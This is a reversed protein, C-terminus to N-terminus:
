LFTHLGIAIFAAFVAFLGAAIVACLGRTRRFHRHSTDTLADGFGTEVVSQTDRFSKDTM